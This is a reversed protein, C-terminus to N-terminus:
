NKTKQEYEFAKIDKTKLESKGNIYYPHYLTSTNYIENGSTLKVGNQNLDVVKMKDFENLPDKNM